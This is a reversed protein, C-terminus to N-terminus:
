KELADLAAPNTKMTLRGRKRILRIAGLEDLLTIIRTVKCKSRYQGARAQSRSSNSSKSLRSVARQRERRSVRGHGASGSVRPSAPNDPEAPRPPAMIVQLVLLPQPSLLIARSRVKRTLLSPTLEMMPRDTLGVKLVKPRTDRSITRPHM